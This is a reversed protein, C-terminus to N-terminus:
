VLLASRLVDRVMNKDVMPFGSRARSTVGLVFIVPFYFRFLIKADILVISLYCAYRYAGTVCYRLLLMVDKTSKIGILESADTIHQKIADAHYGQPPIETLCNSLAPLLKLKGQRDLKEHLKRAREDADYVPATWFYECKIIDGVTDFSDKSVLVVKALYDRSLREDEVSADTSALRSAYQQKVQSSLM